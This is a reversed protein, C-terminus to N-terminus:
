NFTGALALLVFFLILCIVAIIIHAQHERCWMKIKVRRSREHFTLASQDLRLVAHDLEQLNQGRTQVQDIRQQLTLKVSEVDKQVAQVKGSM